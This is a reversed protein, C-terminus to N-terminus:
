FLREQRRLTGFSGINAIAFAIRFQNEDRVGFSFRRYQVSVGCCDTNYTIQVTAFQMVGSRFDYIASFAGNWGRRDQDGIVLLGRFQNANPSLVSSSRVHNHGLSVLYKGFRADAMLGSNVFRRRAPDYDAWWGVGIGPRPYAYLTSVIPSYRRYNDLFSYGTLELSSLLVNRRGPHLAGGFHSDFYRRQELRWSLVEEVVGHRKAYVRQVVKLSAEATNALLDLEDFHVVHHFDDIGRLVRLDLEPEIVHKLKDAIWRPGDYVRALPPLRLDLGLEESTRLLGQGSIKGDRWSSNYHTAQWSVRPVLHFHKWRFASVIEPSVHSREVFKRTQFLPQDRHLLGLSSRLSVWLPISSRRVPVDWLNFAVTPLQRILIRDGAETSHFTESRRFAVTLSRNPAERALFATSHVESFVAENFSETFEQRFLFSSLYNIEARGRFGWGLMGEAKLTTLLGSAKLWYGGRQIGKDNVGYLFLSLDSSRTPRARFDLQHALGRRSFYQTRYMLDFSRSPAWYYGLGVMYGRRSSNGVNPTLFGSKRPQRELSKYFWPFYVLPIGRLRFSTGYILARQGPVIEFRKGQLTWLPKPLRCNTLFGDHVIYRDGIREAWKGQFVFPNTTRLVGPRPELKPSAQGRVDFFRGTAERLNYEARDAEVWDGTKLNELRVHGEARVIGTAEDYEIFDASIRVERTELQAAGRLRYVKGEAEQQVAQIIVENPSPPVDPKPQAAAHLSFLFAAGVRSLRALFAVQRGGLGLRRLGLVRLITSSYPRYSRPYASLWLALM